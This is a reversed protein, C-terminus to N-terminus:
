SKPPLPQSDLPEQPPRADPLFIGLAIIGYAGLILFPALHSAWNRGHSDTFTLIYFGLILIGIGLAIVKKGRSSIQGELYAAQSAKDGEKIQAGKNRHKKSMIFNYWELGELRCLCFIAM